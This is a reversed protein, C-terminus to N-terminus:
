RGTQWDENPTQIEKGGGLWRPLKSKREPAPRAAPVSATSRSDIVDLYDRYVYGRRGEHITPCWGKCGAAIRVAAGNPVVAIVPARSSGEARM